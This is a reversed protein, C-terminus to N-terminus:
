DHTILIFQRLIGFFAVLLEGKLASEVRGYNIEKQKLANALDTLLILYTM